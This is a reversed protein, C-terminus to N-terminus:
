QKRGLFQQQLLLVKIGPGGPGCPGAPVAAVIAIPVVVVPAGPVFAVTILEPVDFLATKFKEIGRPSFPVAAVTDIPV